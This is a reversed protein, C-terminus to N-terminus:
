GNENKEKMEKIYKSKLNLMMGYSIMYILFTQEDYLPNGTMCYIVFFIQYYLSFIIAIKENDSFNMKKIIFAKMIKITNVIGYVFLSSFVIFGILGTEALLQIYVNHVNHDLVNSMIYEWGNGMIPKEFFYQMSIQYFMGRSMLFDGSEATQIFRNLTNNLAPIKTIAIYVGIALIIIIGIFKKLRDKKKDCKYYWIVVFMSLISFVLHARKGILLLAAIILVIWFLNLYRISKKKNFAIFSTLAGGLGIALYMGNTSYHGTLGPQRNTKIMIIADTRLYDNLNPVIKNIYINPNLYFIMTSITFIIGLIYIVKIFTKSFDINRNFTILLILGFIYKVIYGYNNSPIVFLITIFWICDVVAIKPSSKSTGMILFIFGIIAFIHAVSTSGFISKRFDLFFTFILIMIIGITGFFYSGKIKSNM